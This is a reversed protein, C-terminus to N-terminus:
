HSSTYSLCHSAVNQCSDERLTSTSWLICAKNHSSAELELATNLLLYYYTLQTCENQLHQPTLRNSHNPLLGHPQGLTKVSSM